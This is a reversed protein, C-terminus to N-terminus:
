NGSNCSPIKMPPPLQTPKYRVMQCGPLHVLSTDIERPAGCGNQITINGPNCNNMDGLACKSVYKNNQCSSNNRTIGMLDSELDVLNGSIQSVAPGAVVGLDVRCKNCNEYVMPNLLYNLPQVSQQIQQKSACTDYM